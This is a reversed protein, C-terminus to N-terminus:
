LFGGVVVIENDLLVSFENSINSVGLSNLFSCKISQGLLM